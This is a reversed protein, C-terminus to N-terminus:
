SSGRRESRRQSGGGASLVASLRSAPGVEFASVGELNALSRRFSEFEAYEEYAAELDALGGSTFLVTPTLFVMVQGEGRRAVKVAERVDARNADGTVIVSWVADNLRVSRRRVAAVLPRDAVRHGYRARSDFFPRLTAGFASDDDALARGARGPGSPTRRARGPREVGEDVTPRLDQLARRLTLYHDPAAVSPYETTTGDDGVAYLGIRTNLSRASNVFALAVERAYDLKTGGEPGTAMSPRRDVFLATAPDTEVEYERVHPHNLRATAKWDIRRVDDGPLYQRVIAPELGAGHEDSSHEGIGTAYRDGGEGVHVDRPARPEVAVSRRAATPAPTSSRFLGVGDEITVAPRDFEFSGAVPFRVEFATRAEREDPDLTATRAARSGGTAAVPPSVEVEIRLPSPAPRAVAASVTTEDDTVVATRSLNQEVRLEDIAAAADRVFLYQRALLWGAVVGAGAVLIGDGTVVGGAALFAALAVIARFRRTVEM